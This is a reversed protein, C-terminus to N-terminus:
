AKPIGGSVESGGMQRYNNNTGSWYVPNYVVAEPNLEVGDLAWKSFEEMGVRDVIYGIHEKGEPADKDIYHEAFKYTNLIIKVISDEDIFKIWDEGLRPNRKGTRGMISLKFLKKPSRTWARNPCYDVCVGCNICKTENRVPRFKDMTIAGVSKKRCWKECAGCSICRNPDFQPVTIGMIGFDAQRIKACDNPCGTFAVKVHLNNPYIAKEVRRAFATTDYNAYPCVRAGPCSIVNRTGSAPYGQKTEDQNTGVDEIIPQLLKTVEPIDEYSIGPIEFGQRNTVFVTGNGYKEAIEQIRGLNVANIVGGPVRIRSATEGRVKTVRFNHKKVAKTNVDM